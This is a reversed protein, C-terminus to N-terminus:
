KDAPSASGSANRLERALSGFANIHWAILCGVSLIGALLLVVSLQFLRDGSRAEDSVPM